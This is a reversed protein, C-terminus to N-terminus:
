LEKAEAKSPMVTYILRSSQMKGSRTFTASGPPVPGHQELRSIREDEICAALAPDSILLDPGCTIVIADADSKLLDEARYYIRVDNCYFGSGILPKKIKPVGLTM